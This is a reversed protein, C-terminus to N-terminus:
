IRWRRDEKKVKDKRNGRENEIVSCLEDVAKDLETNVILYDYENASAIEKEAEKLRISVQNEEDTNRKRLRTELEGSSPPMIFISISEPFLRKIKRAGKVDISLIIDENKALAENFELWSTGYYSGFNEEWELLEGKEVKDRFVERSLFKYDERDKEGERPPRTTYSVSRRIGPM